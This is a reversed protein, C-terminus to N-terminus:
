RCGTTRRCERRPADRRQLAPRGSTSCSGSTGSRATQHSPGAPVVVPPDDPRLRYSATHCFACNIGVRPFGVTVRSLGIPMPRRRAGVPGALRLRRARCCTRFSARCCWGCALLPRGRQGRHRDIRVPLSGRRVHLRPAEHERFFREYTFAAGAFGRVVVAAVLLERWHRRLFAIVATEGAHGALPAPAQPVFFVLDFFGSCGIPRQSWCSSRWAPPGRFSRWGRTPATAIRTGDRRARLVREPSAAAPRCVAGLPAADRDPPREDWWRTPPRSPPSPWALNAVIGVWVIRSFWRGSTTAAIAM